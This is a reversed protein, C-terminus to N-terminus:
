LTTVRRHKVVDTACANACMVSSEINQAELYKIALGTIFTDGADSVDKVKAKDVKHINNNYKCGEPALTPIIKSQLLSTINNRSKKYELDNIKILAAGDAWRFNKPQLLVVTSKSLFFGGAIKEILSRDM